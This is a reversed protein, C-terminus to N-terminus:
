CDDDDDDDNNNKINKGNSGTSVCAFCLIMENRGRRGVIRSKIERAFGLMDALSNSIM